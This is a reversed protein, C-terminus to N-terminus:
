PTTVPHADVKERWRYSPLDNPLRLSSSQSGVLRLRNGENFIASLDEGPAGFPRRTMPIKSDKTRHDNQRAGWRTQGPRATTTPDAKGRTRNSTVSLASVWSLIKTSSRDFPVWIRPSLRRTVASRASCREYGNADKWDPIPPLSRHCEAAFQDLTCSVTSKWIEAVAISDALVRITWSEAPLRASNPRPCNTGKPCNAAKASQSPRAPRREM